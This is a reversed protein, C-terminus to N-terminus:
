RIWVDGSQYSVHLNRGVLLGVGLLPFEGGNSIVELEREEGFWSILCTFRELVVASGDALTAKLTGCLPLALEAVREQSLVLDGTFGTDIWAQLNRSNGNEPSRVAVTILARGHSDVRGNM